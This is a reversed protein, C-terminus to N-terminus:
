KLAFAEERKKEVAKKMENETKEILKKTLANLGKKQYGEIQLTFKSTIRLIDVEVEQDFSTVFNNLQDNSDCSDDKVEEIPTM